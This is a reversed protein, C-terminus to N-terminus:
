DHAFIYESLHHLKRNLSLLALRLRFRRCLKLFWLPAPQATGALSAAVLCIASRFGELQFEGLRIWM